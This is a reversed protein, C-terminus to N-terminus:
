RLLFSRMHHLMWGVRTRRHLLRRGRLRDRRLGLRVVIVVAVIVFVIVPLPVRLPLLAPVFFVGGLLVAAKTSRAQRPPEM